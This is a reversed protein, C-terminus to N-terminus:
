ATRNRSRPLCVLVLKSSKADADLNQSRAVFTPASFAKEVRFTSVVSAVNVTSCHNFWCM